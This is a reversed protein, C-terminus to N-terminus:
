VNHNEKEAYNQIIMIAKIKLKDEVIVCRFKIQSSPV